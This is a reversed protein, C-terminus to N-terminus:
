ECWEQKHLLQFNDILMVFMLLLNVNSREPSIQPGWNNQHRIQALWQPERGPGYACDLFVQLFEGTLDTVHCFHFHSTPVNTEYTLTRYLTVIRSLVWRQHWFIEKIKYVCGLWSGACKRWTISREESNELRPLTNQPAPGRRLIFLTKRVISIGM